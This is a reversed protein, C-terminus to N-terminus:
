IIVSWSLDTRTAKFVSEVFFLVGSILLLFDRDILIFHMFVTRENESPNLMAGVVMNM